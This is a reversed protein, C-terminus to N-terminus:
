LANIIPFEKYFRLLTITEACLKMRVFNKMKEDVLDGLGNLLNKNSLNHLADICNQLYDTFPMKMRNEILNKNVPTRNEMFFWCDFIDRNTLGSRNVDM